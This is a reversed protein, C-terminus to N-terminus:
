ILSTMQIELTLMYSVGESADSTETVTLMYSVGESADATETTLEGVGTL